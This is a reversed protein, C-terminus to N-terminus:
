VLFRRAVLNRGKFNWIKLPSGRNDCISELVEIMLSKSIKGSANHSLDSMNVGWSIPIQVM